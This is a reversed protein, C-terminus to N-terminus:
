YSSHSVVDSSNVAAFDEFLKAATAINATQFGEKPHYALKAEFLFYYLRQEYTAHRTLGFKLHDYM